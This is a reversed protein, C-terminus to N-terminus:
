LDSGSARVARLHELNQFAPDFHSPSAELARTLLSEAETLDGRLLAVYGVDNLVAARETPRAGAVAQAYRGQWALALRLNTRTLEDGRRARLAEGLHAVADDPRGQLLLSFGRNNHVAAASEPPATDLARAYAAAAEDWRRARDHVVGLGNWARWLSPDAEVAATLPAQARSPHGEQLHTLGLGQHARPGLEPHEVLAAFMERAPAVNGQMLNVEALGLRAHPNDVDHRLVIQYHGRAPDALGEALAADGRELLAAVDTETPATRPGSGPAAACAGLTAILLVTVSLRHLMM